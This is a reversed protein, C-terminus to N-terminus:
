RTRKHEPYIGKIYYGMGELINRVQVAEFWDVARKRKPFDRRQPNEYYVVTYPIDQNMNQQTM